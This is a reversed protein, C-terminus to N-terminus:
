YKLTNNILLKGHRIVEPSSATITQLRLALDDIADMLPSIRTSVSGMSVGIGLEAYLKGTILLSERFGNVLTLQQTVFDTDEGALTSDILRDIIIEELDTLEVHLEQVIQEQEQLVENVKKGHAVFRDFQMAIEALSETLQGETTAARADAIMASLRIGESDLLESNQLFAPDLLDIEFFVRSLERTLHSNRVVSDIHTNAIDASQDRVNAFAFLIFGAILLFAVCTLTNALFLKSRLRRNYWDTLFRM